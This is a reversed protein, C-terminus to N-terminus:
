LESKLRSLAGPHSSEAAAVLWRRAAAEDPRSACGRGLRHDEHLEWQSDADGAAAAAELHVCAAKREAATHAKELLLRALNARALVLGRDAAIEYWSAAANKQTKGFAHPRVSPDEHMRGLTYAADADGAESADELALAALRFLMPSQRRDVVRARQLRVLGIHRMCVRDVLSFPEATHGTRAFTGDTWEVVTALLEAHTAEDWIPEELALQMLDCLAFAHGEAAAEKLLGVGESLSHTGGRKRVVRSLLFQAQPLASSQLEYSHAPGAFKSAELAGRAHHEAHKLRGAALSREAAEMWAKACLRPIQPQEEVIDALRPSSDFMLKRFDDCEQGTPAHALLGRLEFQDTMYLSFHAGALYVTAGVGQAALLVLVVLCGRTCGSSEGWFDRLSRRWQRDPRTYKDITLSLAREQETPRQWWRRRARLGDRAGRVNELIPPNVIRSDHAQQRCM